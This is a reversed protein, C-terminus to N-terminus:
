RPASLVDRRWGPCYPSHPRMINTLDPELMMTAGAACALIHDYAHALGNTERPTPSGPIPPSSPLAPRRGHTFFLVLVAPLVHPQPDAPAPLPELLLCVPPLLGSRALTYWPAGAPATRQLAAIFGAGCHPRPTCGPTSSRSQQQLTESLTQGPGWERNKKAPSRGKLNRERRCNSPCHTREACPWHSQCWTKLEACSTVIAWGARRACHYM